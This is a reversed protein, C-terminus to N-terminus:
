VLPLSVSIRINKFYFAYKITLVFVACLFGLSGAEAKQRKYLITGKNIPLENNFKGYRFNKTTSYTNGYDM